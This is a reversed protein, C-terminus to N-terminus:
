ISILLIYVLIIFATAILTLCIVFFFTGTKLAFDFLSHNKMRKASVLFFTSMFLMFLSLLPYVLISLASMPWTFTIGYDFMNRPDVIIPLSSIIDQPNNLLNPEKVLIISVSIISLVICFLTPFVMRKWPNNSFDVWVNRVRDMLASPKKTLIYVFNAIALGLFAGAVADTPYHVCMYVRSLAVAFSLVLLPYALKGYIRFILTSGAFARASHASPFSSGYEGSGVLDVGSLVEYPRPRYFLTKAVLGSLGSVVFTIALFIAFNREETRGYVWLVVIVMFWFFGGGVETLTLMLIDLAESGSAGNIMYLLMKDYIDLISSHVAIVLAIFTALPLLIFLQNAKIVNRAKM